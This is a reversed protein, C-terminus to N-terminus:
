VPKEEAERESDELRKLHALFPVIQRAVEERWGKREKGKRGLERQPVRKFTGCNAFSNFFTNAM